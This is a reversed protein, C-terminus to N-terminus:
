DKEYKYGSDMFYARERRSITVDAEDLYLGKKLAFHTIAMAKKPECFEEDWFYARLHDLESVDGNRQKFADWDECYACKIAWFPDREKELMKPTDLSEGDIYRIIRALLGSAPVNFIKEIDEIECHDVDILAQRMLIADYEVGYEFLRPMVKVVPLTM